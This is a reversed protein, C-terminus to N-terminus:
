LVSRLSVSTAGYSRWIMQPLQHAMAASLGISFGFIVIATVTFGPAKVLQRLSYRLHFLMGPM